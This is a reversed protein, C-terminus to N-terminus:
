RLFYEDLRSTILGKERLDYILEENSHIIIESSEHTEQLVEFESRNYIDIIEKFATEYVGKLGIETAFLQYNLIRITKHYEVGISPPIDITQAEINVPWKICVIILMVFPNQFTQCLKTLNENSLDDTFVIQISRIKGIISPDIQAIQLRDDTLILGHIQEQVKDYIQPTSYYKIGVDDFYKTLLDNICFYVSEIDEKLVLPEVTEIVTDQQPKSSEQNEMYGKLNESILKSENYFELAKSYDGSIAAKKSEIEYQSQLYELGKVATDIQKQRYLEVGQTNGLVNEILILEGIFEAAESYNKNEELQRIYELLNEERVNIEDTSMVKITDYDLLTLRESIEAVPKSIQKKEPIADITEKKSKSKKLVMIGVVGGGAAVGIIVFIIWLPFEPPQSPSGGSSISFSGTAAPSPNGAGDIQYLFFHYTGSPLTGTFEYSNGTINVEFVFGPTAFPDAEDDIILRYKSIGSPDSGEQWEFMLYGSVEGQPFSTLLPVSPANTDKYLQLVIPVSLTNASDNAYIYIYFVGELLSTWILADLQQNIDNSLLRNSANVVYWITDLNADTVLVNIIPATRWYSNNLPLNLSIQPAITDKIVNVEDFGFVGISNNIYFKITVTGDGQMTWGSQNLIGGVGIFTYNTIGNNLTYWTTNLNSGSISVTFSPATGNYVDNLNPSIITIIPIYIDKYVIVEANGLNNVTDNAFFRLTVTGNGVQDWVSQVIFGTWTYNSTTISANELQYWIEYLNGDSVSLTVNPRVVGFIDFENPEIISINPALIDKKVAIETYNLNGLTDNAYFRLIVTGNPRGSWMTQDITGSASVPTSNTGGDLSYWISDLNADVVTLNYDP